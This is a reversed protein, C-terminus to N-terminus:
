SRTRRYGGRARGRMRRVLKTGRQHPEKMKAIQVVNGKVLLEVEMDPM